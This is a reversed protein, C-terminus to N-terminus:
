NGETVDGIDPTKRKGKKKKKLENPTKMGGKVERRQVAKSYL